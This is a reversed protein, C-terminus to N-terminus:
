TIKTLALVTSTSSGITLAKATAKYAVGDITVNMANNALAIGVRGNRFQIGDTASLFMYQNIGWLAFLGNTGIVIRNADPVTLVVKRVLTASGTQKTTIEVDKKITVVYKLTYSGAETFTYDSISSINFTYSYKGTIAYVTPEAVYSTTITKKLTTGKYLQVRLMASRFEVPSTTAIMPLTLTLTIYDASLTAGVKATIGVTKVTLDFSTTAPQGSTDPQYTPSLTVSGTELTQILTSMAPVTEGSIRVKETEGDYVQFQGNGGKNILIRKVSTDSSTELNNVWLNDITAYEALFLQTAVSEFQAGYTNWYSTNTPLTGAPINGADSRAIYYVNNYKVVDVHTSSGVYLKQANWVDRYVIAPGASGEAGNSVKLIPVEISDAVEGNNDYIVITYSTLSWDIPQNYGTESWTETVTTSNIVLKYGTPMSSSTMVTRTMAGADDQGIRYIKVNIYEASKSGTSLNYSLITPSVSLEYKVGNVIKKFTLKATYTSNGYTASVTIYGSDSIGTITILGESTISAQSLNCGSYESIAFTPSQPVGDYYLIAKSTISGSLLNGEGDYLMSDTPNTLHLYYASAGAAGRVGTLRIPTSWTSYLKPSEGDVLAMTMWLYQLMGVTPATTSWGSPERVTSELSPPTSTSGNVAYRYEWYHGDAGDKGDSGKSGSAVPQWFETNTPLYGSTPTDSFYRYTSTVGNVTYTVEDGLYYTYTSQWVGRFVGILSEDEGGNQIFAGNLVLKRDGNVNFKLKGDLNLAASDLDLYTTGDQSVIRGTTITNGNVRTFGYTTVFDRFTGGESLSGIIGVQFYYNNPDDVNEVKLQEQTVYWVGTTGGKACKAFVYYGGNDTLTASLSSMTWVLVNDEDITLHHLQGASANFINANGGYNTQLIVGTLIFQRSKAGVTLLNTDISNPRINGMDFYGDTDYVMNRLEETTRWGRKAKSFDRLNNIEIVKDHDMVDLVTQAVVTIATTDSLTLTYDHDTLLNRSVKTIRILKEVGFREDKVPIYDGVNFLSTESDGPMNDLFYDRSFKLEYQVRAQKAENFDQLGEYWLDEEAAQDYSTPFCIDTIKYKDGLGIRFAESDATPITLGREDTYKIIKFTKTENNYSSLEFEEGALLGTLFTIKASTGEILYLTNGSEDKANLDFDMDADVFEVVSEGLATVSGTRKPYFDDYTKADEESGIADRLAEDEFYRKTDDDIGITESGVEVVTGDRLTHKHENLRKPYPLQIRDSFDRYGSRVNTTGGEVWLRTIVAKDDVKKETLTYLGKNKGWEFWEAGGPPNVREGFKGVHITCVGDAQTIRFDTNFYDEGCLTQLVNLCNQTSFQVTLPETDPCNAADFTWRGPYDRNMNYIIVWIFEKLTYTLDFISASSSGDAGTNRYLCKMLDYMVGYLTIEYKFYEDTQLTRQVATRIKYECGGVVIKDGKGFTYCETTTLSLTVTDDSMLSTNQVAQTATCFPVMSRVPIVTGDRQIIEIQEM